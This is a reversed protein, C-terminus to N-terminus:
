TVTKGTGLTASRRALCNSRIWVAMALDQAIPLQIPECGKNIPQGGGM